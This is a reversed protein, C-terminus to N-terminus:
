ESAWKLLAKADQQYLPKSTSAIGKASQMPMPAKSVTAQKVPAPKRYQAQVVELKAIDTPMNLLRELKGERALVYFAASGEDIDLFTKQIEKPLANFVEEMGSTVQEFDSYSERMEADKQEVYALRDAVYESEKAKELESIKSKTQEEQHAQLKQEVKYEAKADVYSGYDTFEEEKPAKLELKTELKAKLESIEREYRESREKYKSVQRKAHRLATKAKSPFEDSEEKVEDTSNEEKVEVAETEPQETTKVEVTEVPAEVAEAVEAAPVEKFSADVINDILDTM